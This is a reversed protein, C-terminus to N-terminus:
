GCPPRNGAGNPGLFGLIEGKQVTFAIRDVAKHPGFFKSLHKVEIMRSVAGQKTPNFMAYRRGTM